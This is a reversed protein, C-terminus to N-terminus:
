KKDGKFEKEELDNIKKSVISEAYSMEGRDVKVNCLEGITINDLTLNNSTCVELRSMKGVTVNNMLFDIQPRIMTLSSEMFNSNLVIIQDDYKIIASQDISVKDMKLREGDETYVRGSIQCNTIEAARGFKCISSDFTCCNIFGSDIGIKSKGTIEVESLHVVCDSKSGSSYVISDRSIRCNEGIIINDTVWGQDEGTEDDFLRCILLDKWLQCNDKDRKLM